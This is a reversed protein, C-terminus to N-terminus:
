QNSKSKALEKGFYVMFNAEAEAWVELVEAEVEVWVKARAWAKEEAKEEVM